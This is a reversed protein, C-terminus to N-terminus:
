FCDNRNYTRKYVGRSGLKWKTVTRNCCCDPSTRTTYLTNSNKSFLIGM